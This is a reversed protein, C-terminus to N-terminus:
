DVVLLHETSLIKFWNDNITFHFLYNLCPLLLVVGEVPQLAKMVEICHQVLHTMIYGCVQVCTKVIMNSLTYVIYRGSHVLLSGAHVAIM